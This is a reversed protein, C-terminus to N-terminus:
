NRRRPCGEPTEIRTLLNNQRNRLTGDFIDCVYKLPPSPNQRIRIKTSKKEVMYM